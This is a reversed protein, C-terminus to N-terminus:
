GKFESKITWVGSRKEVKAINQLIRRFFLKEKEEIVDSFQTVIQQTSLQGNSSHFEKTLRSSLEDYRSKSEEVLVSEEGKEAASRQKLREMLSSSSPAAAPMPNASQEGGKGRALREMLSSSSPPSDSSSAPNSYIESSGWTIPAASPKATYNQVSNNPSSFRTTPLATSPSSMLRTNKVTGFKKPAGSEGSSGTWTPVHVATGVCMAVSQRLKETAQRAIMSAEREILLYEHGSEHVVSDHSLVHKVGTATLLDALANSKPKEEVTEQLEAVIRDMEAAPNKPRYSPEDTETEEMEVRSDAFMDCTETIGDEPDEYSFLDKLIRSHFLRKQRPDKLIKNSLFQKYIQRQYIKEEITGSTILRYITVSRLQGIRWARERAQVDTTPNWDPDYLIIRDAKTLNVGIGGTRTTMIFLFISPDSQYQDILAPRQLVPTNGDMRLYSFEQSPTM